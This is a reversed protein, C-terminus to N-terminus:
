NELIYNSAAGGPVSKVLINYTSNKGLADKPNSCITYPRTTAKGNIELLFSIYQGARFYSLKESGKSPDAELVYMKASGHDIVKAVRAFQVPPHLEAALKNANFISQSPTADAAQIHQERVSVENLFPKVSLGKLLSKDYNYKAM